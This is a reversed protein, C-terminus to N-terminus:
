RTKVFPELDDSVTPSSENDGMKRTGVFKLEVMIGTDESSACCSNDFSIDKKYSCFKLFSNNMRVLTANKSAIWPTGLLLEELQCMRTMLLRIREALLNPKVYWMEQTIDWELMFPLSIASEHALDAVM